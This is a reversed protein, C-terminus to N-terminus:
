KEQLSNYEAILEEGTKLQEELATVKETLQAQIQQAMTELEEASLAEPKEIGLERLKEQANELQGEERGIDSIIQDRKTAFIKIQEQVQKLDV